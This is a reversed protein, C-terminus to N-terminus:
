LNAMKRYFEMKEWIAKLEKEKNNLIGELKAIKILLKEDNAPNENKDVLVKKSNSEQELKKMQYTRLDLDESLKYNQVLLDRNQSEFESLKKSANGHEIELKSFKQKLNEMDNVNRQNEFQEERYKENIIDIEAKLEDNKKKLDSLEKKRASTKELNGSISFEKKINELSNQITKADLKLNELLYDIEDIIRSDREWIKISEETKDALRKKLDAIDKEM